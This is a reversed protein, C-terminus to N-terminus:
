SAGHDKQYEAWAADIIARVEPGLGEFWLLVDRLKKTDYGGWHKLSTPKRKEVQGSLWGTWDSRFRQDNLWEGFTPREANSVAM